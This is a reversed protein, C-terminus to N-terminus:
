SPLAPLPRALDQSSVRVAWALAQATGPRAEARTEVVCGSGDPTFTRDLRPPAGGWPPKAKPM